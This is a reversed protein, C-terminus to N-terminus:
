ILDSYWNLMALPSPVAGKLLLGRKRHEQLLLYVALAAGWDGSDGVELVSEAFAILIATISRLLRFLKWTETVSYPEEKLNLYLLALKM